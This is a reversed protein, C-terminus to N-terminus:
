SSWQGLSLNLGLQQILPFIPEKNHLHSVCFCYISIQFNKKGQGLWVQWSIHLKVTAIAFLKQLYQLKIKTSIILYCVNKRGWSMMNDHKSYGWYNPRPLGIHHPTILFYSESILLTKERHNLFCLNYTGWGLPLSIPLHLYKLIHSIHALNNPHLYYWSSTGCNINILCLSFPVCHLLCVLVLTFHYVLCYHQSM